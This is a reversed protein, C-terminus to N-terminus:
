ICETDKERSVMEKVQKAAGGIGSLLNDSSLGNRQCGNGM